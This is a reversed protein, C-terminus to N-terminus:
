LKLATIHIFFNIPNIYKLSKWSKRRRIKKKKEKKNSDISSSQDDPIFKVVSDNSFSTDVIAEPHIRKHKSPLLDITPKQGTVETFLMLLAAMMMTYLVIYKM